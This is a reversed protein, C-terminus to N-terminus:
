EDPTRCPTVMKRRLEALAAAYRGHVTSVAEGTVEAIQGFTMQGWIRMVILEGAEPPMAALAECAARADLADDLLPEFWPRHRAALDPAYRAGTRRRRLENLAANRVTRFLWARVDRPPRGGAALKLFAEQTVDAAAHDDLWQRAYLGLARGHADFWAALQEHGPRREM